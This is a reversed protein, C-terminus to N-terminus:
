EYLLVQPVYAGGAGTGGLVLIRGDPLRHVTHLARASPMVATAVGGAGADYREGTATPVDIAAEGGFMVIRDNPLVVSRTMTRAVSLPAADLIRNTAPDFRLVGATPVATGAVEAEGGVLLVSGDATRHTVQFRRPQNAPWDVATFREDVPDFVEAFRYPM